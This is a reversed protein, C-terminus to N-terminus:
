RWSPQRNIAKSRESAGGGICRMDNNSKLWILGCSHVLVSCFLVSLLPGGWLAAQLPAAPSLRGHRCGAYGPWWARTATRAPGPAGARTRFRPIRNNALLWRERGGPTASLSPSSHVIPAPADSTPPGDPAALSVETTDSLLLSAAPQGGGQSTRRLSGPAQPGWPGGGTTVVAVQELGAPARVSGIQANEAAM